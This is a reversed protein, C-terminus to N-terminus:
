YVLLESNGVECIDMVPCTYSLTVNWAPFM